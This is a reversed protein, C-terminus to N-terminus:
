FHFTAKLAALNWGEEYPPELRDVDYAYILGMGKIRHWEFKIIFQSTIDLRVGLTYDKQWAFHRPLNQAVLLNGNKDSGYSYFENYNGHIELHDNFRWAGSVYWGTPDFETAFGDPRFKLDMLEAALSLQDRQYELSYFTFALKPIVFDFTLVPSLGISGELKAELRSVGIALGELPTNWKVSAGIQRKNKLEKEPVDLDGVLQFILSRLTPNDADLHTAGGYIDYEIDGALTGYFSVGQYALILDRLGEPYVAQPLLVSPRLLDADRGQNYFGLPHKIRGIRFSLEDKWIYEGYAWDIVVEHNGQDGLDRAFLQLGARFSDGYSGMVNVAAETFEFSGDKSDTLYNHQSSDLYGQSVFGFVDIKREQAIGFLAQFLILVIMPRTCIKAM